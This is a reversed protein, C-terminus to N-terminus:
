PHCGCCSWPCGRHRSRSRPRGPHAPRRAAAAAAKQLPLPPKMVWFSVSFLRWIWHNGPCIVLVSRRISFSIRLTSQTKCIRSARMGSELRLGSISRMVAPLGCRYIKFLASRASGSIVRWHSAYKWLAPAPQRAISERRCPRAAATRCGIKRSSEAKIARRRLRPMAPAATRTMTTPMGLTPLDVKILEKAPVARALAALRGPTVRPLCHIETSPNSRISMGPTSHFFNSESSVADWRANM